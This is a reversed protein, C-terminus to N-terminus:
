GFVPPWRRRYDWQARPGVSRTFARDVKTAPSGSKSPPGVRKLKLRKRRLLSQSKTRFSANTDDHLASSLRAHGLRGKPKSRDPARGPSPGPDGPGRPHSFPQIMLTLSVSACSTISLAAACRLSRQKDAGAVILPAARLLTM